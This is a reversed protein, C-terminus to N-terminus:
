VTVNENITRGTFIVEIDAIELWAADDAAKRAVDRPSLTVVVGLGRGIAFNSGPRSSDLRASFELTVFKGDQFAEVPLEHAVLTQRQSPDKVLSSYRCFELKATALKAIPGHGRLRIKALYGGARPNIMEQGLFVTGTAPTRAAAFGLRVTESSPVHWAGFGSSSDVALLPKARWGKPRSGFDSAEIVTDSGFGRQNLKRGDFPKVRDLSGGPVVRVDTAARTGLLDRIPEGKTLQLERGLPDHFAGFPDIGLLHFITATLDAPTVRNRAPYAGQRDSAGYVQGSAIGAGAMAFSFVPGWHDRGGLPNIKPTRGFEAIAVVLTEDLLGRTELDEILATFGVDFKPCLVDELRDANQAHTDWMPNDVASDGPERVWNVHVLRVGAEVLRRSLLLLQNWNSMGYRRRLTEPEGSVDFANRVRGNILIDFAQDQYTGFLKPERGRVVGGFHRDVQELLGVRNKLRLTPVDGLQLGPVGDGPDMPNVQFRDPDWRRGLFGGTQGAPTVNENLRMIQPIWVTSLPPLKESPKLQKVLSGFWPWDGPTIKRPNAGQYKYGTLVEYGSGSHQNNDTAMSRVVALKDAIRATRPLLECFQVGPVNTQIPSFVGRIGSPADPKPDFTEHQPPGGQLWVYIVSKARGFTPDTNESAAVAQSALLGPLNLGLSSLGGVRLM